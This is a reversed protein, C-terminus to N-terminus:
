LNLNLGFSFTRYFPNTWSLNEPDIGPALDDFTFLNEGSFFLKISKMHLKQVVKEPVNYNISINKIRLYAANSLFKDSVRQNSSQSSGANEYIRGYYANEVNTPTWIKGVQNDYVTGFQDSMPFIINGGIWADRKAIGQLIFSMGFQKFEAHGNVGFQYRSSSNGIVTRDGSYEVTDDGQDIVNISTESDALNKFKIDGVHSTVGNISVVGPQLAGTDTFDNETYFGDTVYGWIEGIEQGEYYASSLLKTENKYKTIHSRSDFINFGIGYKFAGTRKKWNLSFEWGNTKLDAANQNPATAGAVAPLQEAPGLMGITRRQYIDFSGSLSNNFFGFDIGGNLTNVQEWTFTARVMPLNGLTQPLLGDYIWNSTTIPLSPLFGYNSVNQNGLSGYSARLKLNSLTKEIDTMFPEKTMIWGVSISPFFGGRFKKPFKSSLDYRANYEIFYKEAYNYNIRYFGSRLAFEDYADDTQSPTVGDTGSLSPLDKNIMNYAVSNIYRYDSYEQNFGGLVKLNHVENFTKTYSGYANITTYKTSGRNTSFPTSTTSQKLNETLGQHVEFFNPYSEFDQFSSQFSYEFIAELGDLPKFLTKSFIRTNDNVTTSANTLRLVNEPTNVPYDVGDYPLIGDPHYSPKNTSFLGLESSSDIFPYLKKGTNYKIDLSTTLWPTIDGNVYSSINTRTFSDKNDVLVGDEKTYGIAMRYNIKDSGGNVSVNHTQRFSSEFMDGMVDTQKLHYKAGGLDAYGLPYTSPDTNYEELLSTYENMSQGSWISTYDGDVLTQIMNTPSALKPLNTVKSWGFNNNYNITPKQNRRGKKTTILIVGFSARAGYIAASSADKLVTISEIDQPNILFLDNYVVNDVLVLPAGGNISNIGRINFSNGGGPVPSSSTTLGPASGQLITGLSTTPRDGLVEDMKISSVAGTLNGQKQTGYGVVVVEDLSAADEELIISFTTKGNQIVEKTKYGLYSVILVVNDDAVEFSFKGDFDTQTGNSTGKEIVNAGPLPQDNADTVTGNILLQQIILNNSQPEPDDLIPVKSKEKKLIIQRDIIIFTIDTERFLDTLIKDIREKSVHVSVLRDTDIVDQNGLFKFESKDEIENFVTMISVGELDLSIKTNQSYTSAEIRLLALLLFLTTLKMKLSINPFLPCIMGLRIIIKNM